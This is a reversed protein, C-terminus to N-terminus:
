CAFKVNVIAEKNILNITIKKHTKKDIYVNKNVIFESKLQNIWFNCESCNINIILDTKVGDSEIFVNAIGINNLNLISITSDIDQPYFGWKKELVRNYSYKIGNLNKFSLNQNQFYFAVNICKSGFTIKQNTGIITQTQNEQVNLEPNILSVGHAAIYSPSFNHISYAWKLGQYDLPLLSQPYGITHTAFDREEPYFFSTDLYGMITNFTTNQIYGGASPYGDSIGSEAPMAPSDLFKQFPHKFGALGHGFEHILTANMQGGKKINESTMKSNNMILVIRNDCYYPSEPPFIAIPGPGACYGFIDGIKEGFNNAACCVVDCEEYSNVIVTPKNYFDTYNKAANIVEPKYIEKWNNPTGGSESLIQKLNPNLNLNDEAKWFYFKFNNIKSLNFVYTGIISSCYPNNPLSIISINSPPIKKTKQMIKELIINGCRM